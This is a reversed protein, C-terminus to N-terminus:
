VGNIIIEKTSLSNTAKFMNNLTGIGYKRVNIKEIENLLEPFYGDRKLGLIVAMVKGFEEFQKVLYDRKLM